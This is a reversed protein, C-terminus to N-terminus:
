GGADAHGLRAPDAVAARLHATRCGEHRRPLAPPYNWEDLEPIDLFSFDLGYGTAWIVSTINEAALNPQAGNEAPLWQDDQPPQPPQPAPADIGAAKVHAEKMLKLRQSFGAEVM